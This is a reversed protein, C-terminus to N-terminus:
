ISIPSWIRLKVLFSNTYFNTLLNELRYSFISSISAENIVLLSFRRMNELLNDKDFKFALSKKDNRYHISDTGHLRVKVKYVKNKYTVKAKLWPNNTSSMYPWGKFNLDKFSNEMAMQLGDSTRKSLTLDLVPVTNEQDLALNGIFPNFADIAKIFQNRIFSIHLERFLKPNISDVLRFLLYDNSYFVLITSFAISIIFLKKM